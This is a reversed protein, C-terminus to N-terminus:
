GDNEDLLWKAFDDIKDKNIVLQQELPFDLQLRFNKDDNVKYGKIVSRHVLEWRTIQYYEKSDLREVLYKLAHIDQIPPNQYVYKENGV